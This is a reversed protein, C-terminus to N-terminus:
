APLEHVRGPLASVPPPPTAKSILNAEEMAERIYPEIATVSLGGWCSDHQWVIAGDLPTTCTIRMKWMLNSINEVREYHEVAGGGRLGGPTLLGPEIGLTSM